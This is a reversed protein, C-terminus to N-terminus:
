QGELMVVRSSFWDSEKRWQPGFRRTIERGAASGRAEVRLKFEFRRHQQRKVLGPREAKPFGYHFRCFDLTLLNFNAGDMM